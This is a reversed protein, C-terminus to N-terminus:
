LDIRKFSEKDQVKKMYKQLTQIQKHGTSLMLTNIPILSSIGLTIFTRRCTHSSILERKLYVKDQNNKNVRRVKTIPEPFLNNVELM